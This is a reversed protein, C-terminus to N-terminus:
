IIYWVICTCAYDCKYTTSFVFVMLVGYWLVIMLIHNKDHEKRYKCNQAHCSPIVHTFLTHCEMWICKPLGNMLKCLRVHEAMKYSKEMYTHMNCFDNEFWRM